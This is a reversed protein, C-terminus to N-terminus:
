GLLSLLLLALTFTPSPILILAFDYPKLNGYFYIYFSNNVKLHRM